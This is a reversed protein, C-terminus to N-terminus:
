VGIVTWNSGNYWVLAKATGGGAIVNGITPSTANTVVQIAGLVPTGLNGTDTSGCLLKSAQVSSVCVINGTVSLIGGVNSNLGVNSNGTVSLRGSTTLNGATVNASTTLSSSTISNTITANVSVFLNSSVNVNSGSINGSTTIVGSSGLNGVNANKTIVVNGRQTGEWEM